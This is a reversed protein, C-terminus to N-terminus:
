EDYFRQHITPTEEVSELGPDDQPTFGKACIASSLGSCELSPSTGLEDIQWQNNVKVYWQLSQMQNKNRKAMEFSMLTVSAFILAVLIMANKKIIKKM